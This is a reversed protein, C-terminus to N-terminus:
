SAPTTTRCPSGSSAMSASVIPRGSIRTRLWFSATAAGGNRSPSPASGIPAEAYKEPGLTEFGKNSLVSAIPFALTALFPATAQKLKILSPRASRNGRRYGIVKFPNAWLSGKDDRIRTFSFVVDDATLDSGDSFKANRLKLTYTLGDASVEWSEALGPVLKTGTKDVRILVDYVNAFVWLDINQATKIPDFTTSIKAGGM